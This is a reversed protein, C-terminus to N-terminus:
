KCSCQLRTQPVTGPPCEIISSLWRRWEPRGLTSAPICSSPHPCLRTCSSWLHFAVVIFTMWFWEFMMLLDTSVLHCWRRHFCEQASPTISQSHSTKDRLYQWVGNGGFLDLFPNMASIWQLLSSIVGSLYFMISCLSFFCDFVNIVLLMQQVQWSVTMNYHATMPTMDMPAQQVSHRCTSTSQLLSIGFSFHKSEQPQLPQHDVLAQM